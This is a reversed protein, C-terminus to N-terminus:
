GPPRRLAIRLPTERPTPSTSTLEVEEGSDLRYVVMAHRAEAPICVTVHSDGVVRLRNAEIVLATDEDIGLGLLGPHDDLVRLLRAHRDRQSFHQDVVAHELLGFGRGTTLECCDGHLIMLRSVIAAGASTGGVVGGRELVQRLAREVRTGGYLDALRGQYGGPMWVGTAEELPRAFEESDAEARTHADLYDLSALPFQQWVQFYDKIEALSEYTCASPILVVHANRGGALRLFERRIPATTCGGGALVLAGHHVLAQEPLGLLNEQAHLSVGSVTELLVVAVSTLVYRM